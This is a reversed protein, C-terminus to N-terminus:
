PLGWQVSRRMGGLWGRAHEGECLGLMRRKGDRWFVVLSEFGKNVDQLAFPVVCRGLVEVKNGCDTLRLEETLPVLGHEEHEMSERLVFFTDTVNDYSIGEFRSEEGVPGVLKNFPGRFSFRLDVQGLSGCDPPRDQMRLM